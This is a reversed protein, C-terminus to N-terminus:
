KKDFQFKLGIHANMGETEFGFVDQYDKNFLNEVRGQISVFKNLQYEASINATTYDGLEVRNAPFVSFDNDFQHDTYNIRLNINARNDLFRYNTILSATTKPVRIETTNGTTDPQTSDVYTYSGIVDINPTPNATLSIEIGKRNSNEELNVASFPESIDERFFGNIEDELEESFYTIGAQLYDSFAHSIGAEWGKSKEPKLSPNGVFPILISNSSFGFREVFSPNKVGTGYAVHFQTTSKNPSYKGTVRYTTRDKFDDNDDNRISASLFLQDLVGIRYEGIYAKNYAKRRQNPDGFLPDATGTQVFKEREREHALTFNQETSKTSHHVTTQYSFKLKEGETSSDEISDAFNENKTDTLSIDVQQSWFGDFLDLASNIKFYNQTTDTERDGDIPPSFPDTEVESEVHRGSIDVLFNDTPTLQYRFNVTSNRYGDDEDGFESINSGNNELYAGYLSFNQFNNGSSIGTCNQRTDFRGASFTSEVHLPGSGKKTQVNVVGALADSGWLASQPGRLVEIREVGCTLLNAFNFESGFAIDNAEIGDILVLTHNAEAGRLRLQTLTGAGGNQSIATGPVDRLLDAVFPIQRDEIDQQSIISISSGSEEIAIPTRSASITISPLQQEAHLTFSCLLVSIFITTRKLSM